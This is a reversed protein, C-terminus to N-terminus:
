PIEDEGKAMMGDPNEGEKLADGEPGVDVGEAVM